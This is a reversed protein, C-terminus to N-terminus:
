RASCARAASERGGMGGLPWSLRGLCVRSVELDGRWWGSSRPQCCPRWLRGNQLGGRAEPPSRRAVQGFIRSVKRDWHCPYRRRCYPRVDPTSLRRYLCSRSNSPNHSTGSPAAATTCPRRDQRHRPARRPRHFRPHRCRHRRSPLRRRCRRRSHFRRPPPPPPPHRPSPAPRAPPSPSLMRCAPPLHRRRRAPPRSSHSPSSHCRCRTRAAAARPRGFPTRTSPPPSPPAALTPHPERADIRVGDYAGDSRGHHPAALPPSAM